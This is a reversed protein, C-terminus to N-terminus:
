RMTCAPPVAVVVPPGGPVNFGTYAVGGSYDVTPGWGWVLVFGAADITVLTLWIQQTRCLAAAQRPAVATGGGSM